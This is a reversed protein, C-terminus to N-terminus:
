KWEHKLVFANSCMNGYYVFELLLLGRMNVFEREKM